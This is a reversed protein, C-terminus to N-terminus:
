RDSEKGSEKGRFPLSSLAGTSVPPINPDNQFCRFSEFVFFLTRLDGLFKERSTKSRLASASEATLRLLM